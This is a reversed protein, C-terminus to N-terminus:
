RGLNPTSKWKRLNSMDIADKEGRRMLIFYKSDIVSLNMRNMAICEDKFFINKLANVVTHANQKEVGVYVLYENIIDISAKPSDQELLEKHFNDLAKQYNICEVSLDGIVNLQLPEYHNAADLVEVLRAILVFDIYKVCSFSKQSFLDDRKFDYLLYHQFESLEIRGYFEQGDIMYFTDFTYKDNDLIFQINDLYSSIFDDVQSQKSFNMKRISVEIASSLTNIANPNSYKDSCRLRLLGFSIYKTLYESVPGFNSCESIEILQKDLSMINECYIFKLKLLM